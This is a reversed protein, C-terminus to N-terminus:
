PTEFPVDLDDTKARDQPTYGCADKLRANAGRDLLLRIMKQDRNAVALHLPAGGNPGRANVDAQGPPLKAAADLLLATMELRRAKVALHLPASDGDNRAAPDAGKALLLRAVSESGLYAAFHLPTNGFMDRPGPNAGRSLLFAALNADSYLAASHLPTWGDGNRCNIGSRTGNADAALLIQAVELRDRPPWTRDTTEMPDIEADRTLLHLPYSGTKSQANVDAGRALLFKVTPTQGHAAAFHLPTMGELGADTNRANIDGDKALYEQLYALDGHTAAIWPSPSNGAGCGPLLCALLLLTAANVPSPRSHNAPPMFM